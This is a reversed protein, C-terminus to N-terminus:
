IHDLCFGPDAAIETASATLTGNAPKFGVLICDGDNLHPTTTGAVPWSSTVSFDAGSGIKCLSITEATPQSPTGTPPPVVVSAPSNVQTPTGTEAGCGLLVALSLLSLSAGLLKAIRM